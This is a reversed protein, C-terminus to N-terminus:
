KMNVDQKKSTKKQCDDKSQSTSHTDSQIKKPPNEVAKKRRFNYQRHVEM